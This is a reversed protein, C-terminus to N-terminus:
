LVLERGGDDIFVLASRLEIGTAKLVQDRAGRCLQLVDTSTASRGAVLENPDVVGLRVGGVTLGCCGAEALLDTARADEADLFVPATARQGSRGPGRVMRPQADALGVPRLAFRVATVVRRRFDSLAPAGSGDAARWRRSAGGPCRFEVWDFVGEADLAGAAAARVIGGISHDGDGLKDLGYLGNRSAARCVQALNAGGGAVLGDLELEWRGLTGTLSLVPVGIGRDPPVLRSGGGLTVWALGHAAALDLSEQVADESHCRMVVTALGGVGLSTWARLDVREHVELDARRRLERLSVGLKELEGVLM